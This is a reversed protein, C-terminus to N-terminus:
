LINEDPVASAVTVISVLKEAGEVFGDCWNSIVSLSSFFPLLLFFGCCATLLNEDLGVTQTDAKIFVEPGSSGAVPSSSHTCWHEVFSVTREDKEEVKKSVVKVECQGEQLVVSQFMIGCIYYLTETINELLLWHFSIVPICSKELPSNEVTKRWRIQPLPLLTPSAPTHKDYCVKLLWSWVSIFFFFLLLMGKTFCVECKSVALGTGTM